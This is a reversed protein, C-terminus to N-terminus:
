HVFKFGPSKSAVTPKGITSFYLPASRDMASKIMWKGELHQRECQPWKADRWKATIQEELMLHCSLVLIDRAFVGLSEVSLLSQLKWSRKIGRCAGHNCIIIFNYKPLAENFIILHLRRQELQLLSWYDTCWVGPPPDFPWSFTARHEWININVCGAYTKYAFYDLLISINVHIVTFLTLENLKLVCAVNTFVSRSLAATQSVYGRRVM